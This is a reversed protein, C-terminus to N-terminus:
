AREGQLWRGIILGLATGGVGVMVDTPDPSRTPLFLQGFEVGSFFLAAAILWGTAVLAAPGQRDLTFAAIVGLPTALGLKVLLDNFANLASGRAHGAFPVLSVGALKRKISVPDIGFDYPMWHYAIIVICWTVLAAVMRSVFLRPGKVDSVPRALSLVRAGTWVGAAVGTCGFIVDSIDAAHSSVFIQALEIAAVFAAGIAFAVFSRRRGGGPLWVVLGLTGLPAASIASVLADWVVRSTPRSAGHFPVISILGARVREGLDGVDVTVDFPALNVFVWAAAYAVLVRAVRDERASSLWTRFWETLEPGVLAWAGIGILCGLTQGVVDSPATMRGPTFLQLFEVSSSLAVSVALVGLAAPVAFRRAGAAAARARSRREPDTSTEGYRKARLRFRVRTSGFRAPDGARTTQASPHQAPTPGRSCRSIRDVLLSGTLGFGVPIFLLINAVFNTRSIRLSTRSMITTYELWAIDLPVYTFTFPILSAYVAFAMIAIGLWLYARRASL